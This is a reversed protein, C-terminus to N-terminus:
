GARLWAPSDVGTFANWARCYERAEPGLYQWVSEFDFGEDWASLVAELFGTAVADGAPPGAALVSDLLTGIRQLQQPTLDASHKVFGRGLDALRLTLPPDDNVDAGEGGDEPDPGGDRWFEVSRRDEAALADSVALLEELWDPTSM